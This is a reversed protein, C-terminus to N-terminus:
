LQLDSKIFDPWSKNALADLFAECQEILAQAQEANLYTSSRDIEDGNPAHDTIIVLMEGDTDPTADVILTSGYYGENAQKIVVDM